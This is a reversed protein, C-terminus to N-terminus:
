FRVHLQHPEAPNVIAVAFTKLAGPVDLPHLYSFVNRGVLEDPRYGLMRLIAPSEYLINGKVDLVTTVDLSNEIMLQFHEPNIVFRAKEDKSM